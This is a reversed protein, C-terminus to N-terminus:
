ELGVVFTDAGVVKSCDVEMEETPACAAIVLLCLTRM